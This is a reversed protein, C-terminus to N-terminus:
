VVSKRDTKQTIYNIEAAIVEPTRLNQVTQAANKAEIRTEEM